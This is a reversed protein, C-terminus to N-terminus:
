VMYAHVIKQVKGTLFKACKEPFSVEATKRVDLFISAENQIATSFKWTLRGIFKNVAINSNQQPQPRIHDPQVSSTSEAQLIEVPEDATEIPEDATLM